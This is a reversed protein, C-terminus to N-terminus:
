SLNCCFAPVKVAKKQWEDSYDLWENVRTKLIVFLSVDKYRETLLVLRLLFIALVTVIQRHAPSNSFFVLCAFFYLKYRLCGFFL